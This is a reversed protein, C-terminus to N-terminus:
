ANEITYVQESRWKEPMIQGVNKAMAVLRVFEVGAQKLLKGAGILTSGSTVVDDIVIVKDAAQLNATSSLKLYETVNAFRDERNLHENSNSRVGPAYEFLNPEFRIRMNSSHHTASYDQCQQILRGLRHDRGPRAPICTLVVSQGSRLYRTQEACDHLIVNVWRQPFSSATKCAEIENTLHHHHRIAQLPAYKSFFRGFASIRHRGDDPDQFSFTRSNGVSSAETSCPFELSMLYNNPNEMEDLFYDVDEFIFDPALDYARYGSVGSGKSKFLATHCVAHYAAKIDCEDDGIAVVV